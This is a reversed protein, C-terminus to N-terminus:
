TCVLDGVAMGAGDGDAATGAGALDPVQAVATDVGAVAPGQGPVVATDV